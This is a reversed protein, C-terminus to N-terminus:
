AVPTPPRVSANNWLVFKWRQVGDYMNVLEQFYDLMEKYFLPFNSDMCKTDYNYNLLFTLGGYRNLYYSPITKWNTGDLLRGIWSLRLSKTMMRLNIFNLGGHALPQYVVKRKIKDKKNRWLFAFLEAQTKQIVNQPVTLM